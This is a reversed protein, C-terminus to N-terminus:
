RFLLFAAVEVLTLAVHYIVTATVVALVTKWFSM